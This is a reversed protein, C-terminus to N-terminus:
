PPPRHVYVSDSRNKECRRSAGQPRMAVNIQNSECRSYDVWKSPLRRVDSHFQKMRHGRKLWSTDGTSELAKVEGSDKMEPYPKINGIMSDALSSKECQTSPYLSFSRWM